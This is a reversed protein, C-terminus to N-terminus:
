SIEALEKNMETKTCSELEIYTDFCIFVMDLANTIIHNDDRLHMEKLVKAYSLEKYFILYYVEYLNVKFRDSYKNNFEKLRNEFKNLKETNKHEHIFRKLERYKKKDEDNEFLFCNKIDGRGTLIISEFVTMGIALFINVKTLGFFSCFVLTSGIMCLIPSKYHMPKYSTIRAIFFLLFLIIIEELKVNMWIGITIIISIEVINFISSCIIKKIDIKQMKKM